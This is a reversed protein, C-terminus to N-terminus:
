ARVPAAPRSRSGGRITPNGRIPEVDRRGDLAASQIRPASARAAGLNRWGPGAGYSRTPCGHCRGPTPSRTVSWGTATHWATTSGAPGTRGTLPGEGSSPRHTRGKRIPYSPRWLAGRHPESSPEPPVCARGDQEDVARVVPEIVPHQGATGRVLTPRSCLRSGPAPGHKMEKSWSGPRTTCGTTTPWNIRSSSGPGLVRM